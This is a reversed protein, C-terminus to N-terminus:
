RVVMVVWCTGAGQFRVFPMLALRVRHINKLGARDLSYLSTSLFSVLIDHTLPPPPPLRYCDFHFHQQQHPRPICTSQMEAPAKRTRAAITEWSPSWFLLMHIHLSYMEGAVAHLTKYKKERTHEPNVCYDCPSRRRFPPQALLHPQSEVLKFPM